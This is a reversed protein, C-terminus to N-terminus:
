LNRWYPVQRADCHSYPDSGLSSCRGGLGPGRRTSHREQRVGVEMTSTTALTPENFMHKEDGFRGVNSTRSYGKGDATNKDTIEPAGSAGVTGLCNQRLTCTSDWRAAARFLRRRKPHPWGGHLAPAEKASVPQSFWVYRSVLSCTRYSELLSFIYSVM